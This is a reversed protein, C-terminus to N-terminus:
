ILRGRSDRRDLSPTPMMVAYVWGLVAGYAVNTMLTFLPVGAGLELGFLGTNAAPMFLLMQALWVLVGFLLGRKVITDAPLRPELWAFLAGGVVASAAIYVIWGVLLNGPVGLGAALLGILHLEPVLGLARQAVLLGALLATAVAGAAIGKFIDAM